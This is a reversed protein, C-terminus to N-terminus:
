AGASKQCARFDGLAFGWAAIARMSVAWTNFAYEPGATTITPILSGNWSGVIAPLAAANAFLYWRTASGTQLTSGVVPSTCGLELRPEVELNAISALPNGAPLKDASSVDRFVFTSNLIARATQELAPPVVLTAPQLNLPSGNPATQLRLKKIATGLSTSSLASSGSSQYNGNSDNTPMVTTDAMLAAYILDSLTRQAMMSLGMPMEALGGVDDNVIMPMPISLMKAYPLVQWSILNDSISGHEIEGANGLPSMKGEFVPRLSKSPKFDKSARPACWSTWTPPSQQWAIELIKNQVNSLLDNIVITSADAKIMLGEIGGSVDAGRSRAAALMADSLTMKHFGGARAEEMTRAGYSKEAASEYGARILIGAAIHDTVVGAAERHADYGWRGGGGSSGVGPGPRSARLHEVAEHRCRDETWREDFARVMIPKGCNGLLDVVAKASAPESKKEEPAEAKMCKRLAAKCEEESMADIEEDTYGAQIQKLAAKYNMTKRGKTAALKAALSVSTSADAGIPTITIERLRSKPILTYGSESEITQGNVKVSEGGRIPRQELPECGISAQLEVGSELIALVRAAAETDACTADFYLQGNVVQPVASGVVSGIENEHDALVTAVDPLEMGALDVVIPGYGAVTM